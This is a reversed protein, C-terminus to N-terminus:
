QVGAANLLEDWGLADPILAMGFRNVVAVDTPSVAVGRFNIPDGISALEIQIKGSGLGWRAAVTPLGNAHVEDLDRGVGNVILAAAGAKSLKAASNGGIISGVCDHEDAVVVNGPVIAKVIKDHGVRNEESPVRKPIYRLTLVPGFRVGFAPTAETGAPFEVYTGVNISRLADTVVEVADTRSLLSQVNQPIERAPRARLLFDWIFSLNHAAM